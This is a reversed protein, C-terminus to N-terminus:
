HVYLRPCDVETPVYNCAKATVRNVTKRIGKKIVKNLNTLEVHEMSATRHEANAIAFWLISQTYKPM